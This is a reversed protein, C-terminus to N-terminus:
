GDAVEQGPQAPRANKLPEWLTEARGSRAARGVLRALAFLLDSLRNLYLGVPRSPPWVYFSWPGHHPRTGGVWSSNAVRDAAAAWFALEARRCVTRAHHLAAEAPAGGPLVFSTLPPLLAVVAATAEELRAVQGDTLRLPPRPAPAAPTGSEAALTAALERLAVEEKTPPPPEPRSLDAGADCLDNQVDYLVRGAAAPHLHPVSWDIPSGAPWALLHDPLAARAVGLVANLEDVAGIAAVLLDTKDTRRGGALCTTGDDGARTTLRSLVVM